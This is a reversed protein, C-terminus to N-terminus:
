FLMKSLLSSSTGVCPCHSVSLSLLHSAASGCLLQDLQGQSRQISNIIGRAGMNCSVRCQKLCMGSNSPLATVPQSKHKKCAVITRLEAWKQNPKSRTGVAHKISSTAHLAYTHLSAQGEVKGRQGQLQRECSPYSSESFVPSQGEVFSTKNQKIKLEHKMKIPYVNSLFFFVLCFDCSMQYPHQRRHPQLAMELCLHTEDRKPFM